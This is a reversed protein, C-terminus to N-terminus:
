QPLMHEPLVSVQIPTTNADYVTATADDFSPATLHNSIPQKVSFEIEDKINATIVSKPFTITCSNNQSYKYCGVYTM